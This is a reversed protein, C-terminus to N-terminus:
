RRVPRRLVACLGLYGFAVDVLFSGLGLIWLFLYAIHAGVPGLLNRTAADGGIGRGVDGRDFTLLALMLVISFLTLLAGYIEMQVLQGAHGTSGGTGAVRGESRGTGTAM